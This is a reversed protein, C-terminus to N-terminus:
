TLLRAAHSQDHERVSSKRPQKLTVKPRQHHQEAVAGGPHSHEDPSRVTNMVHDAFQLHAGLLHRGRVHRLQVLLSASQNVSSSALVAPRLPASFGSELRM